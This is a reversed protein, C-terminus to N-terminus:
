EYWSGPQEPENSGTCDLDHDTAKPCRKNGCTGCVIFSRGMELVARVNPLDGVVTELTADECKRCCTSTGDPNKSRGEPESM